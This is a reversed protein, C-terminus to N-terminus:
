QVVELPANFFVYRNKDAYKIDDQTVDVCYTKGDEFTITNWVHFEGKFKGGIRRVNLGAMRGLMYFADSYGQCNTEGTVLAAFADPKDQPTKYNVKKSGIKNEELWEIM